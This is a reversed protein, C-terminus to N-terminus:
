SCEMRMKWDWQIWLSSTWPQFRNALCTTKQLKIHFISFSHAPWHSFTDPNVLSTQESGLLPSHHMNTYFKEVFLAHFDYLAHIHKWPYHTFISSIEAVSDKNFICPLPDSLFIAQSSKLPFETHSRTPSVHISAWFYLCSTSQNIQLLLAVDFLFELYPQLHEVLSLM